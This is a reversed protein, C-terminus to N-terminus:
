EGWVFQDGRTPALQELPTIKVVTRPNEGFRKHLMLDTIQSDDKYFLGKLANTVLYALNDVDPRKIHHIVHNLMQRRRIGSTAKPIPLYFTLDMVCPDLFPQAPAYPKAQWEIQRRDKASPDYAHGRCFQTQKQPIPPSNIEFLFM